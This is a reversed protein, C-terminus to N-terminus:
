MEKLAKLGEPTLCLLWDDVYVYGFHQLMDLLTGGVPEFDEIFNTVTRGSGAVTVWKLAQKIQSM